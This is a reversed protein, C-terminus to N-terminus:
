KNKKDDRRYFKIINKKIKNQRKRKGLFFVSFM